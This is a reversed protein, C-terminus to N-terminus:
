SRSVRDMVEVCALGDEFTPAESPTVGDRVADRIMSAFHKMPDLVPNADAGAAYIEEPAGKRTHLVLRSGHGTEELAGNSGYVLISPTLNVSAAWSSDMVTTVNRATRLRLTFADDATCSHPNGESDPREGVVTEAQGSVDVIDGFAFRNLDIWHSGQARLWGGGLSEDFVWKFQMSRPLSMMLTFVVHQPEGIAGEALLQRLRQRSEFFRLQFNLFHPVGAEVALDRMARADEAHRGFPKDCLVACGREVAMRVNDLHMFPPSHVSVLDVEDCLKAVADKDRPSVVDVVTCGETAEFAPAVAQSGFGRGIVGVRM